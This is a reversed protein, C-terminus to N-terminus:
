EEVEYDIDLDVEDDVTLDGKLSSSYFPDEVDEGYDFAMLEEIERAYEEDSMSLYMQAPIEIVKGNLLQIIM